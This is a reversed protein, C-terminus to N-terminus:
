VQRGNYTIHEVGQGDKVIKEYVAELSGDKKVVLEAM